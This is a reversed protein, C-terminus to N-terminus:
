LYAIILLSRFNRKLKILEIFFKYIRVFNVWETYINGYSSVAANTTGMSDKYLSIVNYPM